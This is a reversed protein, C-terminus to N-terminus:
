PQVLRALLKDILQGTRDFSMGAIDSGAGAQTHCEMSRALVLPRQGGVFGREPEVRGMGFRM